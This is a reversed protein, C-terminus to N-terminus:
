MRLHLARVLSEGALYEVVSVPFPRTWGIYSGTVILTPLLVNLLAVSKLTVASLPEDFRCILIACLLFAPFLQGMSRWIDAIMTAAIMGVCLYAVIFGVAARDMRKRCTLWALVPVIWWARFSGFWAAAWSLPSGWMLITLHPYVPHQVPRGFWGHILSYRVGYGVIVGAACAVLNQLTRHLWAPRPKLAVDFLFVLPIGLLFREDNILGLIPVAFFLLPCPRYLLLVLLLNTVSDACGPYLNSGQCVVTLGLGLTGYFSVVPKFYRILLLYIFALTAVNALYIIALGQVGRLGILHALSPVLIRLALYNESTFFHRM